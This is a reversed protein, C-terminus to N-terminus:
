EFHAKNALSILEESLSEVVHDLAQLFVVVFNDQSSRFWIYQGNQRANSTVQVDVGVCPSQCIEGLYITILLLIFPPPRFNKQAKKINVSIVVIDLVGTSDLAEEDVNEDVVTTLLFESTASVDILM